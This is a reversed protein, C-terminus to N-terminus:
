ANFRVEFGGFGYSTFRGVGIQKGIAIMPLWPSCDGMFTTQGTLFYYGFNSGAYKYNCKAFQSVAEMDATKIHMLDYVPTNIVSSNGYIADLETLRSRILGTFRPFTLQFGAKMSNEALRLHNFKITMSAGPKVAMIAPLLAEPETKQMSIFRVNGTLGNDGVGYIEGIARFAEEFLSLFRNANGFLTITFGFVGSEYKGTVLNDTNLRFPMPLPSAVPEKVPLKLAFYACTNEHKCGNCNIIKQEAVREPDSCGAALAKIIANRINFGPYTTFIVPKRVEYLVNYVSLEFM